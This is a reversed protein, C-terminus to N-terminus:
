YYSNQRHFVVPASRTRRARDLISDIRRIQDGAKELKLKSIARRTKIESKSIRGKRDIGVEVVSFPLAKIVNRKFHKARSMRVTELIDDSELMQDDSESESEFRIKNQQQQQKIVTEFINEPLPCLEQSEVASNEDEELIEDERAEVEKSKKLRAQLNQSQLNIAKQRKSEKELRRAERESKIQSIIKSKTTSSSITEPAEDDEDSLNRNEINENEITKDILLTDNEQSIRKSSTKATKSVKGM